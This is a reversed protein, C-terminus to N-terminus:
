IYLRFYLKDYKYIFSKSEQKFDEFSLVGREKNNQISENEDM